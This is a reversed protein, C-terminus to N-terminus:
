MVRYVSKWLRCTWRACSGWPYSRGRGVMCATRANHIGLSTVGVTFCMPLNQCHAYSNPHAHAAKTQGTPPKPCTLVQKQKMLTAHSVDHPMTAPTYPCRPSLAGGITIQLTHTNPIYHPPPPPYTKPTHQTQHHVLTQTVIVVVFVVSYSKM